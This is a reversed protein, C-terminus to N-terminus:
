ELNIILFFCFRAEDHACHNLGLRRSPNFYLAIYTVTYQIFTYLFVIIFYYHPSTFSFSSPRVRDRPEDDGTCKRKMSADGATPRRYVCVCRM